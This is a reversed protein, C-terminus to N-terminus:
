SSVVPSTETPTIRQYMGDIILTNYIADVSAIAQDQNEYFQGSALRNPDSIELKNDCSNFMLLTSALTFIKLTNKLM